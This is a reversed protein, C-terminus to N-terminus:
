KRATLLEPIRWHAPVPGMPSNRFRKAVRTGKLEPAPFYALPNYLKNDVRVELHLHPGTSRGTNGVAAIKQGRRVKQGKKVHIKQLHGYQTYVNDAHRLLVIKGYNRFRKRTGAFIVKGAACALVPTGRSAAIDLGKHFIGWRYGFPSTL